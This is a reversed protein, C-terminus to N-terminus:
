LGKWDVLRALDALELNLPLGQTLFLASTLLSSRHVGSVHAWVLVFENCVYICVSCVLTDKLNYTQAYIIVTDMSIYSCVLDQAPTVPYNYVVVHTSAVSSM